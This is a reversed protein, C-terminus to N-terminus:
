ALAEAKLSSWKLNIGGKQTLLPLGETIRAHTNPGLSSEERNSLFHGESVSVADDCEESSFCSCFNPEPMQWCTAEAEDDCIEDASVGPWRDAKSSAESCKNIKIKKFKDDM